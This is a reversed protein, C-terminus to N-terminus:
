MVNGGLEEGLVDPAPKRTIFLIIQAAFWVVMGIAMLLNSQSIPIKGALVLISPVLTLGLAAFSLITLIMKM